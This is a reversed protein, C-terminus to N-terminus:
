RHGGGGHGGFGGHGFGGARGMRRMGGSGHDLGDHNFRDHDFRGHDFRDHDFRDHDFRRHDFDGGLFLFGNNYYYGDQYPYPAYALDGGGGACAALSFGLGILLVATGASRKSRMM